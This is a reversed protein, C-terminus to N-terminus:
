FIFIIYNPKFKTNKQKLELKIMINIEDIM